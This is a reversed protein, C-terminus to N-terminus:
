RVVENQKMEASRANQNKAGNIELFVHWREIASYLVYLKIYTCRDSVKSEGGDGKESYRM